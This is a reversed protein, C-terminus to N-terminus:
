GLILEIKKEINKLSLPKPLFLDAGCNLIRQRNNEADFGSIAIVKITATDPSEKLRRCVEFGDMKPMVLDLIILHPKFTITQQGAEFGDYAHGVDYGKRTLAKGLTKRVGPDDDVILIRKKGTPADLSFPYMGKVQMFKYLDDKHIRYQGGPTRFTKIEGAKIYKWLTVRHLGCHKAAKPISFIEDTAM